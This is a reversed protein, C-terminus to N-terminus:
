RRMLSREFFDVLRAFEMKRNAPNRSSHREEPVPLVEFGKGERILASIWRATHRFHVNEDILGHMVLLRGDLRAAKGLLSSERYGSVNSEPTGM